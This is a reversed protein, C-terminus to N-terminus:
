SDTAVFPRRLKFHRQGAEDHVREVHGTHHIMSGLARKQQGISITTQDIGLVGILENLDDVPVDGNFKALMRQSIEVKVEPRSRRPMEEGRSRAASLVVAAM